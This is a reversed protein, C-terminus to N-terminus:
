QKNSLLLFHQMVILSLLLSSATVTVTSREKSSAYNVSLPFLPRDFGPNVIIIGSASVMM